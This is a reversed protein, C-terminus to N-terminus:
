GFWGKKAFSNLAEEETKYISYIKNMRTIEFIEMISPCICCLKLTKKVGLCGKRLVYNMKSFLASSAFTVGHYSLLVKSSDGEVIEQFERGIQAIVVDSLIKPGPLEIVLVDDKTETRLEPM